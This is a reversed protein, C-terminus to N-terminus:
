ISQSDRAQNLDFVMLYSIYRSPSICTCSKSCRPGKGRGPARQPGLARVDSPDGARSMIVSPIFILYVSYVGYAKKANRRKQM